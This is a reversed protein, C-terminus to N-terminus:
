HLGKVNPKAAVYEKGYMPECYAVDEFQQNEFKQLAIERMNRASIPTDDFLANANKSLLEKCKEMGNGCFVVKKEGLVDVFSNEDIIQASFPRVERLASDYLATFVEMRRADLMPCLLADPHQALSPCAGAAMVQLTPVAIFPIGLSYCLGKATSVGIRLGTYSGPGMSVAVAQLKSPQVNAEHLTEEIFPLLVKAHSRGEASERFAVQETGKSLAVSCIETSTDISLIYPM